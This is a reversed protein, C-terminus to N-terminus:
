MEKILKIIENVVWDNIKKGKEATAVTPDGNIGSPFYKEINKTIIYRPIKDRAIKGKGKVLDNRLAIIRSTEIAGGHGDWSPIKLSQLFKRGKEEYLLEYDSLVLIKMNGVGEVIREAAQRLAQMHARGAHGSIVVIKRIRNRAFESFIDYTLSLLADFSVSVSGPFNKTSGCVGYRISPAIFADLKEAVKKAIYETQISDTALPLHSGHEEIIGVPLIVISKSNVKTKFENMTLEDLYYM